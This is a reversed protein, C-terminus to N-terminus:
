GLLAIDCRELPALIARDPTQTQFASTPGSLVADDGMGFECPTSPHHHQAGNAVVVISLTDFLRIFSPPISLCAGLIDNYFVRVCM